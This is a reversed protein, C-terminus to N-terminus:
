DELALHEAGRGRVRSTSRAHQHRFADLVALGLAPAHLTDGRPARGEGEAIEAQLRELRAPHCVALDLGRPHREGPAELATTLDPDAHERVLRDGLLRGLRPHALALAVRLLPDGHHLGPADQVLHDPHGLVHGAVREPRRGLPALQGLLLELLLRALEVFLDEIQAELERHPHGLIGRPQPVRPLVQRPGLRHEALLLAAGTPSRFFRSPTTTESAICFFRPTLISRTNRGGRYWRTMRIDFFSFACSSFLSLRTPSRTRM